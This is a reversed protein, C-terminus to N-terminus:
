TVCAFMGQYVAFLLDSVKSSGVSPAGLVGMLGLNELNGIFPGASHSFALSYGWFFWQFSTVAASMVSLWLLSLASKRRTLGSYFFGVGPIMLLVLATSTLLWATDGPTYSTNLDATLSNGGTIPTSSASPTSSSSLSATITASMTAPLDKTTNPFLRDPASTQNKERAFHRDSFM